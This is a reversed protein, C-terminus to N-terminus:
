HTDTHTRAKTRAAHHGRVLRRHSERHTNRSRPAERLTSPATALVVGLGGAACAVGTPHTTPDPTSKLPRRSYTLKVEERYRPIRLSASTQDQPRSWAASRCWGVRFGSAAARLFTVWLTTPNARGRGRKRKRGGGSATAGLPPTGSRPLPTAGTPRPGGKARPTNIWALHSFKSDVSCGIVQAGLKEFEAAKDSFAIIETPCVFTFDLPYFFLVVYKGKYDALSVDKFDKGVLATAKFDPAKNGIKIM